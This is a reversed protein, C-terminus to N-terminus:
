KISLQCTRDFHIMISFLLWMVDILHQTSVHNAPWLWHVSTKSSSFAVKGTKMPWVLCFFVKWLSHAVLNASLSLLDNVILFFQQFFEVFVRYPPKRTWGLDTSGLINAVPSDHHGTARKLLWERYLHTASMLKKPSFSLFFVDLSFLFSFFNTRKGTRTKFGRGELVTYWRM